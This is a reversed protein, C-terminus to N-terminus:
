ALRDFMVEAEPVAAILVFNLRSVPLTVSLDGKTVSCVVSKWMSVLRQSREGTNLIRGWPGRLWDM